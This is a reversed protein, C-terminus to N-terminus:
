EVVTKQQFAFGASMVEGRYELQLESVWDNRGLSCVPLIAKAQWADLSVADLRRKNFGMDMGIMRFNIFMDDAEFGPTKVEIDFPVLASPEQKFQVEVRKNNIYIVCTEKAPNCNSFDKATVIINRSHSNDQGFYQGLVYSLGFIM